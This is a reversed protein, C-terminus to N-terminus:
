LEEDEEGGADDGCEEEDDVFDEDLFRDLFRQNSRLRRRIEQELEALEGFKDDPAPAGAPKGEHAAPAPAVKDQDAM